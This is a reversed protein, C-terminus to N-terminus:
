IQCWWDHSKPLSACEHMGQFTGNTWLELHFAVTTAEDMGIEQQLLLIRSRNYMWEGLALSPLYMMHHM